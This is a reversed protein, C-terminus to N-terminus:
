SEARTSIDMPCSVNGEEKARTVLQAVQNTAMAPPPPVPTPVQAIHAALQNVATFDVNCDTCKILDHNECLLVSSNPPGLKFKVERFSADIAAQVAPDPPQIQMRQQQQQQQQAALMQQQQQPTPPTHSHM